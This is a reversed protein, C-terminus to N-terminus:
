DSSFMGTYLPNDSQQSVAAVDFMTSCCIVKCGGLSNINIDSVLQFPELSSKTFGNNKHLGTIKEKRFEKLINRSENLESKLRENEAEMTKLLGQNKALEIKLKRKEEREKALDQLARDRESTDLVKVTKTAFIPRIDRFKATTNCQPCKAQRGCNKVWKEICIKGFLHGCNLSVLRHEASNTWPELCIICTGVPSQSAKENLVEQRLRKPTASLESETQHKMTENNESESSSDELEIVEFLGDENESESFENGQDVNNADDRLTLAEHHSAQEASM